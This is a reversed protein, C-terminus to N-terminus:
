QDQIRRSHEGPPLNRYVEDIPIKQGTAKLVVVEGPGHETLQWSGGEQRVFHEIREINQSVLVYHQLSPIRRYHAFKGGRDWAETSGSLVEVLVVPNTVANRDDTHPELPWCVVALDPYTALGTEVVRIKLDSDYPQCPGDGLTNFFLGYLNMKIRSHRPSGGAMAWAEGNLFEHRADMRLELGLYETYTIRPMNAAEAM